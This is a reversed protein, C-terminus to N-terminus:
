EIVTIIGAIKQTSWYKPTFKVVSGNRNNNSGENGGITSFTRNVPDVEVCINIHGAAYVIMDGPKPFPKSKDSIFSPPAFKTGFGRKAAADLSRFVGATLPPLVKSQLTTKFINQIKPDTAGVDTYAERWVLNTFWNCWLASPYSSWGISKMKAEFIPDIFKQNDYGPVESQGVYSKAIRVIANRIPSLNSNNTHPIPNGTSVPTPSPTPSQPSTNASRNTFLNSRSDAESMRKPVCYTEIKTLWKNDKIEHSLNKILFKMVNPYNTPMYSTDLLFQQNIKIGSIGDLTLNLNFPIFGTGYYNTSTTTNNLADSAKDIELSKQVLNALTNKFNDIDNSKARVIDPDKATGNSLLYLFNFYDSKMRELEAKRNIQDTIDYPTIPNSPSNSIAHKYKDVFGNNLKSLATDNEGVVSGQSSAGVTIMTAFQSSLETTLNLDRIFGASGTNGTTYYGYVQLESQKSPDSYPKGNNFKFSSSFNANIISIIEDAYNLPNKDIIKGMNQTEDIFIDFDNIGGLSGNIGGLLGKLFDILPLNGKDDMLESMKKLIFTAELYINMINGYQSDNRNSSQQISKTITENLISNRPDPIGFIYAETVGNVEININRNIFCVRPDSAVQLPHLNFINTNTDTDFNLLNNTSNQKNYITPVIYIELFKLFAGLRIYYRTDDWQSPYIGFTGGLDDFVIKLIDDQNKEFYNLDFHIIGKTTDNIINNRNNFFTTNSPTLSLATSADVDYIIGADTSKRSDGINSANDAFVKCMYIFNGITSSFAFANIIDGPIDSNIADTQSTSNVVEKKGGNKTGPSDTLVNTKLSEIVDGISSLYVTIDYSGDPNFTWNFNAVKALMADYNGSEKLRAQYIFNLWDSYTYKNNDVFTKAYRGPPTFDIDGQDNIHIAHGWELLVSFGLRLYLADIIEFQVRNFAKIKVTARRLSGRNEHKIHASKIGMMPRLGFETGGIGYATSGLISNRESIGSFLTNGSDSTGNFLVFREALINDSIGDIERLSINNIIDQKIIDTSSVLKVWSTNANLFM